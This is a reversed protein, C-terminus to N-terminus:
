ADNGSVIPLNERQWAGLGGQLNFVTEVGNKRLTNVVQGSRAGSDCVLLVTQAKKLKPPLDGSLDTAAINLSDVIHGKAFSDADRVDVVKAGGNILRIAQTAPIAALTGAKLRLENFLVALAMAVTGAALLTNAGIFELLQDMNM